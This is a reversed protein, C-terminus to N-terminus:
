GELSQGDGAPKLAVKLPNRSCPSSYIFEYLIFREFSRCWPGEGTSETSLCASWGAAGQAGDRAVKACRSGRCPADGLGRAQCVCEILSTFPLSKGPLGTPLVGAEVAPSAPEIGPSPVLTECTQHLWFCIFAYIFPLLLSRYMGAMPTTLFM